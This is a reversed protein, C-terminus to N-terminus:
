IVVWQFHQLLPHAAFISPSLESIKTKVLRAYEDAAILGNIEFVTRISVDAETIVLKIDSPLFHQFQFTKFPLSTSFISLVAANQHFKGKYYVYTKGFNLGDGASGGILPIGGLQRNVFSTVREELMSLGDIFLLAFQKRGSDPSPLTLRLLDPDNVYDKLSPIFIPTLNIEGSAFGVGTLSNKIYGDPSVIEGATTCGIVPCNFYRCIASELIELDYSPDCFFVMANLSDADLQLALDRAADEANMSLSVGRRIASSKDNM